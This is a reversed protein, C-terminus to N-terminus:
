TKPAAMKNETKNLSQNVIRWCFDQWIDREKKWNKLIVQFRFADLSACCARFAPPSPFAHSITPLPAVKIYRGERERTV